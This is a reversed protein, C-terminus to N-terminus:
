NDRGIPLSRIRIRAEDFVVVAGQSLPELLDPLNTISLM